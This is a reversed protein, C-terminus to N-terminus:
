YKWFVGKEPEIDKQIVENQDMQGFNWIRSEKFILILFINPCFKLFTDTSNM